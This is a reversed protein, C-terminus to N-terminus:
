MFFLVYEYKLKYSRRGYRFFFKGRRQYVSRWVRGVRLRMVYRRRRSRTRRRRVRRRRRLRLWRRRRRVFVRRSTVRIGIYNRGVRIVPRRRHIVIKRWRSSVRAFLRYRKRPVRRWARRYFYHFRGQKYRGFLSRFFSFCDYILYCFYPTGSLLLFCSVM